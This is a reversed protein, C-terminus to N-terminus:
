RQKTAQLLAKISEEMESKTKAEGIAVLAGNPCGKAAVTAAIYQEVQLGCKLKLLIFIGAMERVLRYQMADKENFTDQLFCGFVGPILVELLYTQFGRVINVDDGGSGNVIWQDTLEKFFQICTRKMLPDTLNIAGDGVTRLIDELSAVNTASLLIPTCGSAVVQYLFAFMIKKIHLQETLLHPPLDVGDKGNTDAMLEFCKKLLPLLSGDAVPIMNSKFKFCLQHLLQAVDLLDEQRCHLILVDLFQPMAVLSNEGLCLIMRQLYIMTKNRVADNAPIARLINLCPSITEQFIAQVGSSLKKSFGKTLFAISAISYALDSGITDPDRQIDPSKLLSDIRQMHPSMVAVLYRQQEEDSLGTRGLLLGITEYLYLSDDPHLSLVQNSLLGQIGGIATEVFPRLIGSLSKVLKLLLYCSRSRVRPHENQLGRAGSISTLINPLLEPKDKLIDAYRVAIDYYLIIVERHPHAAVDSSHLAVLVDRFMQNKLVVTTGPPPRLGECYHYILRLAAELENTPASSLPAQIQSLANCLFQLSTDPSIRIITQNLKRLETRYMEEESDDEDEYDFEFDAPYKMQQYMVALLQPMHASIRFHGDIVPKGLEKELSLVLRSALTIVAGSVDIDDYAYCRFFLAVLLHLQASILGIEENSVSGSSSLQEMESSEWFTILEMGILTVLEAIKIVVNIHTGDVTVLDVGSASIRQLLNLNMIMQVKKQEEMGKNVIEKFCDVAEAACQSALSGDGNDDDADGPGAHTLCAVLSMIIAENLILSLDVWPIFRKLVSLAMIPLKLRDMEGSQDGRPEYVSQINSQFIMMIAQIINSAISQEVPVAGGFSCAIGRVYDKILTNRDNSTDDVVEDCFGDLTRLFIDKRTVEILSSGNRGTSDAIQILEQFATQWRDPFDVQILFSLVVGIKTRMYTPMMRDMKENGPIQIEHVRLIYRHIIQRLETRCQYPVICDLSEKSRKSLARQTTSFTYFIVNDIQQQQQITFQEVEGREYIRTMLQVCLTSGGDASSNCMHNLMSSAANKASSM